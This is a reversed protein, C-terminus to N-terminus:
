KVGLGTLNIDFPNEDADNSRIRITAKRTGKASPKFTVKFTTSAGPALSKKAPGTVIFDKSHSGSKQIALSTLNSTGTNKITFTKTRGAGGLSQTGFNSKARGDVLQTGAPQQVSIEAITKTALGITASVDTPDDLESAVVDFVMKQGDTIMRFTHYRATATNVPPSELSAENGSVRLSLPSGGPTMVQIHNSDIKRIEATAMQREFGDKTNLLNTDGYSDIEWTGVFDNVSAKGQYDSWLGMACNIDNPADQSIMFFGRTTGDSVMVFDHLKWGGMNTPRPFNVLSNGERKTPITATDSGAKGNVTYRDTGTKTVRFSSNNIEEFGDKYLSEVDGDFITIPSFEGVFPDGHVHTTVLSAFSAALLCCPINPIRKM